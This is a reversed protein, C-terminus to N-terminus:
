EEATDKDPGRKEPTDRRDDKEIDPADSPTPTPPLTMQPSELTVTELLLRSLLSRGAISPVGRGWVTHLHGAIIIITRSPFGNNPVGLSRRTRGLWSISRISSIRAIRSRNAM